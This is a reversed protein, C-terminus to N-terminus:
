YILCQINEYWEPQKFSMSCFTSYHTKHWYFLVSKNLGILRFFLWGVLRNDFYDNTAARSDDFTIHLDWTRYPPYEGSPAHSSFSVKPHLTGLSRPLSMSGHCSMACTGHSHTPQHGGAYTRTSSSLCCTLSSFSRNWRTSLQHTAPFDKWGKASARWTSMTM